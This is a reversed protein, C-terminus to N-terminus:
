KGEAPRKQLVEALEKSLVKQHKNVANFLKVVTSPICHYALTIYPGGYQGGKRAANKLRKEEAV